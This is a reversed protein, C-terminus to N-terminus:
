QILNILVANHDATRLRYNTGLRLWQNVFVRNGVESMPM